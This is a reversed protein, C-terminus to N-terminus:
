DSASGAQLEGTPAAIGFLGELIRRVLPAATTAGHGGQEVIAVVVYRPHDVPAMAAFWSYPQKPDVLATGTKGAGPVQDLPFGAFATGATGGEQVVGRLAQKIYTIVKKSVPFKGTAKADIRQVTKGEPSVVKLGLHPEWMTGGNAIASYAVALQMPTVQVFGQGISMNVYDGPYWKTDKGYVKPASEFLQRKYEQTPIVGGFESPLDV